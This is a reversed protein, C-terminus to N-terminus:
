PASQAEVSEAMKVLETESFPASIWFSAGTEGDSWFLDNLAGKSQGLLLVAPRDGVQVPQGRSLDTGEAPDGDLAYLFTAQTGEATSYAIMGETGYLAERVPACGEPLWTPRYVVTEPPQETEAAASPSPLPPVPTPTPDPERAPRGLLLAAAIVGALLLVPLVRRLWFRVPHDTRFILKNMKREFAPSFRAPCSEPEPLAELIAKECARAADRLDQDSM